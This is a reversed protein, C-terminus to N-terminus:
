LCALLLTMVLENQSSHMRYEMNGSQVVYRWRQDPDKLSGPLNATMAITLPPWKRWNSHTLYGLNVMALSLWPKGPVLNVLCWFDISIQQIDLRVFIGAHECALHNRGLMDWTIMESSNLCEFKYIETGKIVGRRNAFAKLLARAPDM